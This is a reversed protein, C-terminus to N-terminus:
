LIEGIKKELIKRWPNWEEPTGRAIGRSNMWCNRPFEDLIEGPIDKFNKWSNKRLEELFQEPHSGETGRYNKQLEM